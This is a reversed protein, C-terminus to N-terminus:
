DQTTAGSCLHCRKDGAPTLMVACYAPSPKQFQDEHWRRLIDEKRREAFDEAGEATLPACADQTRYAPMRGAAEPFIRSAEALEERGSRKLKRESLM